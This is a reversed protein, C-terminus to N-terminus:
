FPQSVKAVQRHCVKALAVSSKHRRSPGIRADMALRRLEESSPLRSLGLASATQCATLSSSKQLFVRPSLITTLGKLAIAPQIRPQGQWSASSLAPFATLQGHFPQRPRSSTGRRRAKSSLRMAKRVWAM